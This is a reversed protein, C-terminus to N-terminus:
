ANAVRNYINLLWELQQERSMQSNDLAISDAARRLPSEKRTSDIFDRGKVNELVQEYTVSTGKELLEKYRRQARTEASADVFIKLEAHPFVVTGIDRGDMVIGKGAGLEQQMKVLAQRVEKITSVPSVHSSVEMTRIQQEVDEGNLMTHQGAMTKEFSIAIQPLAAVLAPIDVTGDPAIMDHRLAYLTVARYMAGSDIYHYGIERALDKAMTSKGSSSYGDIAIIIKKM